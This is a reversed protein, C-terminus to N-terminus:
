RLYATRYAAYGSRDTYTVDDNLRIALKAGRPVSAEAPKQDKSQGYLYGGVAGLITTLTKNTNLVRGLLYGGAAGIGIVKLKDGSSKSAGQKAVIRGQTTTVSKDDLSILEGRLPLRTGDPLLVNRFDFDLVGPNDGNKPRSEVVVGEIKSGVPFESDGLRQSVVSTTFTQGVRASGSSLATDLTVPVVVGAPVSITRAPAVQQGPVPYTNGTAPVPYTNGTAPPYIPATNNGNVEAGTSYTESNTFTGNNYADNNNAVTANANPYNDGPYVNGSTATPYRDTYPGTDNAQTRLFSTRYEAYNTTDAYTVADDLRIGLRAGRPLTAEAAKRDRSRGYLYGGVAGAITTATKNTNLIRGLIYGGAAGIGIVKLKDGSSSHAGTKAVVRGQAMGVSNNDLSILEGRIPIRNGDPLILNRFDFDLVGPNDGDKPRAEVVIGEIKSGVPFESDGLRMSAVSTTFNQGVVATASSLPQDLTVPVVVGEPVSITRAAAVQQNRDRNDRDRNWNGRNRDANRDRDQDRNRDRDRNSAVDAPGGLPAGNDATRVPAPLDNLDSPTTNAGAAAGTYSENNAALTTGTGASNANATTIEVLEAAGNWDVKADLAEAVFRLPVMTRNNIVLPPQDLQVRRGNIIATPNNIQLTINTLDKQATVNQTVPHWQITAGLAEFIDRMPVLTRNNYSIPAVSTALPQGNLNIHIAAHAAQSWGFGTLAVVALGATQLAKSNNKSRRDM